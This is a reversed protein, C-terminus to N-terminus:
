DTSLLAAEVQPTGGKRESAGFNVSAQPLHLTAVGQHYSCSPGPLLDHAQLHFCGAGM